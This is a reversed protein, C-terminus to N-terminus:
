ASVRENMVRELEAPAIRVLRGMHPITRIIGAKIKRDLTPLSVQLIAAAEPRTLAATM